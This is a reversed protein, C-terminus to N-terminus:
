IIGKLKMHIGDVGDLTILSPWLPSGPIFAWVLDGVAFPVEDEKAMIEDTAKSTEEEIAINSLPLDDLADNQQNTNDVPAKEDAMTPLDDADIIPPISVEAKNEKETVDDVPVRYVM